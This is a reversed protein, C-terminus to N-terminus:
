FISSPSDSALVGRSFWHMEDNVPALERLGVLEGEDGLLAVASFCRLATAARVVFEMNKKGSEGFIIM